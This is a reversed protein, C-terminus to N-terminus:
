PRWITPSTTLTGAKGAADSAGSAPADSSAESSTYRALQENLGAESRACQICAVFVKAEHPAAAAGPRDSRGAHSMRAVEPGAIVLVARSAFEPVKHLCRVCTMEGLLIRQPDASSM